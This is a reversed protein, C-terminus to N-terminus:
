RAEGAGSLMSRLRAKGRDYHQRASGISIALVSAAQELTLEQYFVLHLVDRQRPSLRSLLARLRERAQADASLDEPSTPAKTMPADSQGALWRGFALRRVAFRKRRSAAILRVVGFFWTGLSSGGAFRAKGDLVQVYATQLVDEAEQRDFSCCALAWGFSAEHLAALERTLGAPTDTPAVSRLAELV